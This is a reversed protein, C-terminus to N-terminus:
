IILLILKVQEKKSKFIHGRSFKLNCIHKAYMELSCYQGLIDNEVTQIKDGIKANKQAPSRHNLFYNLFYTLLYSSFSGWPLGAAFDGSHNQSSNVFTGRLRM